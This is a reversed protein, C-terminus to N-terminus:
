QKWGVVADVIFSLCSFLTILYLCFIWSSFFCHRNEILKIRVNSSQCPDPFFSCVSETMWYIFLLMQDPYSHLSLLQHLVFRFVCVSRKKSDYASISFTLFGKSLVVAKLLVDAGVTKMESRSSNPLRSLFVSIGCEPSLSISQPSPNNYEISVKLHWVPNLVNHRRQWVIQEFRILMM